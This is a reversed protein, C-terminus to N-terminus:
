PRLNEDPRREIMEASAAAPQRRAELSPFDPAADAIVLNRDAILYRRPRYRCDQTREMRLCGSVKDIRPTGRAGDHDAATM